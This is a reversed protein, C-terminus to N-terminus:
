TMHEKQLDSNVSPGDREDIHRKAQPMTIDLYLQLDALKALSTRRNMIAECVPCIAVLNGATVTVPAYEVMGGAPKRPARCRVCYIEDPECVRKNKERRARLFVALDRGLVLLPRHKDVTSLGEKIWTRVTNKHVNFQTAIEEVSYSRHIKVLRYNLHRKAM